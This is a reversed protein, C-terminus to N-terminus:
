DTCPVSRAFFAAEFVSGELRRNLCRYMYHIAADVVVFAGGRRLMTPTRRRKSAILTTSLMELAVTGLGETGAANGGSRVADIQRRPPAMNTGLLLLRGFSVSPLAALPM